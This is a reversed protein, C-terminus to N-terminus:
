EKIELVNLFSHEYEQGYMSVYEKFFKQYTGKAHSHKGMQYQAKCKLIMADENIVDFNFISDALDIVFEAESNIECSQGFEVLTDIISDSISAKFDDLWQYQLNSLFAGKETIDILLNVKQKTLNNRSASIALFDAYDNKINTDNFLIKWYGTKKSLECSGVQDLISRLKAINVARNNRASKESKDYWLVETIKESSIGKENKFTHLLILLFLEKLLPSFKNTIDEFDKNFVQFGGFLIVNYNIHTLKPSDLESISEKKPRLDQEATSEEVSTTKNRRKLYLWGGVTSLILFVALLYFYITSKGNDSNEVVEVTANPPNDISFIAIETTEDNFYSTYAFLKNVVPMYILKAVSRVDLFKFPIKDGVLEVESSDLSGKILQLEGDFTSKSYILAYYSRDKENVWMTNGVIMDDILHPIEFKKFLSGDKISYAFLDFYSHPNILQNGTHSGYGGLFFLTDKLAGLGALYRPRFITDNTPLDIRSNDSLDIKRILNYYKHVGYGGFLYISNNSANFFSNHHRYTSETKSGMGIKNWEGNKVDLSFVTADDVLYFYIKNDLTNFIAKYGSILVPAKNKYRVSEIDNDEASYIILESEGVIFIQGEEPHSAVMVSGDLEENIRSQWSHHSLQLWVPNKVEAKKNKLRDSAFNNEKENLLWNYKLKGKEFVKLNKINMSPVDSTKFQGYDNAGFIIKYSDEKKFGINDQVYFTDPTYFVMKDERVIFKIRLNIWNNISNPPYYIPIISNTKGIVINLRIDPSPTSLLDVNHNDQNIIRFVYGFIASGKIHDLKYDFSVEFEDQFSLYDNPSLNLETRKDLSVDHGQFKLGYTQAYVTGGYIFFIGYLITTILNRCYKRTM